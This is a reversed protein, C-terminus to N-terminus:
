KIRVKITNGFVANSSVMRDDGAGYSRKIGIKVTYTTGVKASKSKKYTLTVYGTGATAQDVKQGNVYLRVVDGSQLKNKGVRIKLAHGPALKITTSAALRVASLATAPETPSVINDAELQVPVDTGLDLVFIKTQDTANQSAFLQIKKHEGRDTVTRVAISVVESNNAADDGGLGNEVLPVLDGAEDIMLINTGTEDNSTYFPLVEKGNLSITQMKNVTHNASDLQILETWLNNDANTDAPDYQFISAGNDRDANGVYIQGDAVGIAPLSGGDVDELYREGITAYATGDFEVVEGTSFALYVKDSDAATAELPVGEPQGVADSFEECDTTDCRTYAGDYFLYFFNGLVTAAAYGIVAADDAALENDTRAYLLVFDNLGDVRYIRAEDQCTAAFYQEAQFSITSHRGVQQCDAMADSEVLEWNQGLADSNWVEIGVDNSTLAVFGDVGSPYTVVAETNLGGNGAELHGVQYLAGGWITSAATAEAAGVATAALWLIASLSTKLILSKRM